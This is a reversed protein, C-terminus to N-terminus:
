EFIEFVRQLLEEEEQTIQGNHLAATIYGYGWSADVKHDLPLNLVLRLIRGVQDQSHIKENTEM